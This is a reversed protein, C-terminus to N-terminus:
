HRFSNPHLPGSVRASQGVSRHFLPALQHTSALVTHMPHVFGVKPTERSRFSSPSQHGCDDANIGHRPQLPVELDLHRHIMDLSALCHHVCVGGPCQEATQLRDEHVPGREVGRVDRLPDAADAGHGVAHCRNLREVVGRLSRHRVVGPDQAIQHEPRVEHLGMNEVEVVEGQHVEDLPRAHRGPLRAPVHVLAERGGRRLREHVVINGGQLHAALGVLHARHEPPAQGM